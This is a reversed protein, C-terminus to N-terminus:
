LQGGPSQFGTLKFGTKGAARAALAAYTSRLTVLESLSWYRIERGDAMRIEGPGTVGALIAADIADVIAQYTAASM